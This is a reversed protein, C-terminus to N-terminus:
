LYFGAEGVNQLADDVPAGLAVLQVRQERWGM